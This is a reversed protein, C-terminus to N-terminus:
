IKVRVIRWWYFGITGLIAGLTVPLFWASLGTSRGLAVAVTSWVIWAFMWATEANLWGVMEMAVPMAAERREASVPLNIFQQPLYPVLTLVAYLFGAIGVLMWLSSKGGWGDAVGNCGFHTPIIAPLEAYHVVVIAFTAVVGLAAVGDRLAKM